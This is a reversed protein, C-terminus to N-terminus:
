NTPEWSIIYDLNSGMFSNRTNVKYGYTNRLETAMTEDIYENQVFVRYLGQSTAGTILDNIYSLDSRTTISSTVAFSSSVM